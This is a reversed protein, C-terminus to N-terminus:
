KKISKKKWFKDLIEICEFCLHKIQGNREAYPSFFVLEMFEESSGIEKSCKDCKIVRTM